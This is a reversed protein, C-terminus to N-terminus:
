NKELIEYAGQPCKSIEAHGVPGILESCPLHLTSPESSHKSILSGRCVGVLSLSQPTRSLFRSPQNQGINREKNERQWLTQERSVGQDEGQNGLELGLRLSDTPLVRDAIIECM